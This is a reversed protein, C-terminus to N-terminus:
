TMKYGPGGGGEPVVWNIVQYPDIIDCTKCHVCNSFNLLLKEGGREEDPVMEYVNAPCYFQCPNGYEEACKTRCIDTDVVRLHPQQDEDHITSSHYVDTLKDFTKEKHGSLFSKQDALVKKRDQGSSGYYETLKQMREPATEAEVYNKLGWSKGGTLFQLGANALASVRGGGWAQHFNRVKWLQDKAWSEEFKRDYSGLTAASCDDKLLAEFISEAAMMGSKIALHIGKLRMSDVFGATDGILVCGDASLQPMSFYGGEPISKAGYSVIEGGSLIEAIKPQVKYEQFLQHPNTYPNKSDLGVVLGVSVLDDEMFYVWGGGFTDGDLPHGLTHIVEGTRRSAGPIKWVEKVGLAFVQSNRGEKIKEELVLQKALNGRVGEGLVTVRATIDMGPEFTAKKEGNKDIGMDRTQVGRVRGEEDYLMRAGAFGPYVEVGKGEAKEGLWRALQQISVIWNDHNNLPPPTFPAKVWSKKTLWVVSDETVKTHPLDSTEQEWGDGFLERIGRPNMVAGSLSHAGLESAKEIVLLTLDELKKEAGSENHREILNSLHIAGSLSAPGAGVFLVDVPLEERSVGDLNLSLQHKVQSDM